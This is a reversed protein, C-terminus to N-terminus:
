INQPILGGIQKAVLQPHPVGVFEFNEEESAIQIQVNGYDFVSSLAGVQLVGVDQVKALLTSSIKHGAVAYWDVDIIKKNTVIYVNFYWYLFNLFVYTLTGLYWFLVAVLRTGASVGSFGIVSLLPFIFLPTLVLAISIAIWPIATIWHARLLLIVKEGEEAEGFNVGDPSVLFTSLLSDSNKTEKVGTVIEGSIPQPSTEELAQDINIRAM